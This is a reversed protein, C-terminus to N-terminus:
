DGLVLMTVHGVVKGSRATLRWCGPRPFVQRGNSLVRRPAHRGLSLDRAVLNRLPVRHRDFWTIKPIDGDPMWGNARPLRDYMFFSGSIRSSPPQALVWVNTIAGSAKPPPGLRIPTLACRFPTHSNVRQASWERGMGAPPQENGPTYVDVGRSAPCTEANCGASGGALLVKDSALLTATQYERPQHMTGAERWTGTTPDYLEATALRRCGHDGCGYGGSVLVEGDSLLTATHGARTQLMNGTARWRGTGPDYLEASACVNSPLCGYGGAVLVEGDRLLTATHQVRGTGMSGTLKWTGTEQNYLEASACIHSPLCGEGGAVLVQGDSLLTATHFFRRQHMSGTAEWQGAAPDYLEATACPRFSCFVGGAALVDGDSLLTATHFYRATRLSGTPAWRGSAPDYLEASACYPTSSCGFGGAVLVKGSSLLTATHGTRPETMSGTASWRGSAPDYLDASACYSNPTYLLVCGMGGALLVEGDSLLTATHGARGVPMSAAAQWADGGAGTAGSPRTVGALAALVGFTAVFM